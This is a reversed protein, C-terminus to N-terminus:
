RWDESRDLEAQSVEMLAKGLGLTMMPEGCQPGIETPLFLRGCSYFISKIAMLKSTAEVVDPDFSELAEGYMECVHRVNHGGFIWRWNHHKRKHSGALYKRKNDLFELDEAPVDGDPYKEAFIKEFREISKETDEYMADDYSNKAEYVYAEVQLYRYTESLSSCDLQKGKTSVWDALGKVKYLGRNGEKWEEGDKTLVHTFHGDCGIPKNPFDPHIWLDKYRKVSVKGVNEFGLKELVYPTPWLNCEMPYNDDYYAIMKDWIDGHVWVGWLGEPFNEHLKKSASQRDDEYEGAAIFDAFEQL